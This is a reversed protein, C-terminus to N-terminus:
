VAGGSEGEGGSKRLHHTKQRQREEEMGGLGFEETKKVLAERADQGRRKGKRMGLLRKSKRYNMRGIASDENEEVQAM